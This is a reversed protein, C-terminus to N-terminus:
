LQNTFIRIVMDFLCEILSNPIGFDMFANRCNTTCSSRFLKYFSFVKLATGLRQGRRERIVLLTGYKTTKVDVWKKLESFNEEFLDREAGNDPSSNEDTKDVGKESGETAAPALDLDKSLIYWTM